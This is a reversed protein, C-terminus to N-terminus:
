VTGQYHSRMGRKLGNVPAEAGALGGQIACGARGERGRTVTVRANGCAITARDMPRDDANLVADFLEAM